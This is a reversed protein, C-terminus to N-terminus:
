IDLDGCGISSLDLLDFIVATYRFGRIEIKRFKPSGIDCVISVCVIVDNCHILASCHSMSCSM